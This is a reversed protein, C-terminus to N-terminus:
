IKNKRNAITATVRQNLKILAIGIEGAVSDDADRVIRVWIDYSGDQIIPHEPYSDALFITGNQEVFVLAPVAMTADATLSFSNLDGGVWKSQVWDNNGFKVQVLLHERLPDMFIRKWRPPDLRVTLVWQQPPLGEEKLLRGFRVQYRVWTAPLLRILIFFVATAFLGSIFGVWLDSMNHGKKLDRNQTNDETV